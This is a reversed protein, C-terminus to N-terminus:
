AFAARHVERAGGLLDRLRLGHADIHQLLPSTDDPRLAPGPTLWPYATEKTVVLLGVGSTRAADYTSASVHEHWIGIWSEDAVWRNVYAQKIARSWDAVKLEVVVLRDDSVFGLDVRKQYWPIEASAPSMQSAWGLRLAARLVPLMM